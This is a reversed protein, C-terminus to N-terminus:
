PPSCSWFYFPWLAILDQGDIVEDVFLNYRENGQASQFLKQMIAVSDQGDVVRDATIDPPWPDSNAPSACPVLQHSAPDPSNIFIAQEDMDPWGDNDDDDDCVDGLNDPTLVPQGLGLRWGAAALVSDTSMQDPNIDSPCNDYIDWMGQLDPAHDHVFIDDRGYDPPADNTDDAVLNSSGSGFGVVSGDDSIAADFHDLDGPYGDVNISELTTIGTERDHLFINQLGTTQFGWNSALSEFAVLRGEGDIALSFSERNAKIGDSNVSVLFTSVPGAEDFVGDEDTDRDHVFADRGGDGDVGALDAFSLFAVFRGDRSIDIGRNGQLTFPVGSSAREEGEDGSSDVSVRVTSGSDRDRVFVDVAENNDGNVLNDASSDFAIHQGDDSIAISKVGSDNNSQLGDGYVSVRATSTQGSEDFVGNGDADRDHLFVDVKGNTDWQVLSDDSSSFAIFRGDGSIALFRPGCCGVPIGAGVGLTVVESDSVDYVAVEGFPTFFAVFSGDNSIVPRAGQGIERTVQTARDRIFVTNATTANTFVVLSGDASLDPARSISEFESGDEQLSIREVAYSSAAVPQGGILLVALAMLGVLLRSFAGRVGEDSVRGERARVKSAAKFSDLAM